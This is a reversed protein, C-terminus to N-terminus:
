LIEAAKEFVKIAIEVGKKVKTAHSKLTTLDMKGKTDDALRVAEKAFKRGAKETENFDIIQTIMENVKKEQKPTTPAGKDQLELLKNLNGALHSAKKRTFTLKQEYEKATDKVKSIESKGAVGGKTAKSLKEVAKMLDERVKAESAFAKKLEKAIDVASKAVKYYEDAKAGASAVLAAIGKGIKVVGYTVKATIKISWKAFEKNEKKIKEWSAKVRNEAEKELNGILKKLEENVQKAIKEAEEPDTTKGLQTDYKKIAPEIAIKKYDNLYKWVPEMIRGLLSVDVEKSSVKINIQGDPLELNKAKITILNFKENVDAM